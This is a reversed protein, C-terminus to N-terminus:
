AARRPRGGLRRYDPHPDREAMQVYMYSYAAGAPRNAKKVKRMKTKPDGATSAKTPATKKLTKSTAKKPSSKGVKPPPQEPSVSASASAREGLRDSSREPNSSTTPQMWITKPLTTLTRTYQNKLSPDAGNDLLVRLSKKAEHFVAIAVPTWGRCDRSNVNVKWVRALMATKATAENQASSASVAAMERAQMEFVKGKSVLLSVM